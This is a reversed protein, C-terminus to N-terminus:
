CGRRQQSALRAHAWLNGMALRPVRAVALWHSLTSLPRMSKEAASSRSRSATSDPTMGPALRTTRVLPSTRVWQETPCASSRGRRRETSSSVVQSKALKVFTNADVGIAIAKTAEPSRSRFAGTVSVRGSAGGAMLAACKSVCELPICAQSGMTFETKTNITGMGIIDGTAYSTM